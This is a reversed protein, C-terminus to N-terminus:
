IVPVIVCLGSTHVLVPCRSNIQESVFQNYTNWGAVFTVSGIAARGASVVGGHVRMASNSDVLAKNADPCSKQTFYESGGYQEGSCAHLHVPHVPVYRGRDMWKVLYFAAARSINPNRDWILWDAPM